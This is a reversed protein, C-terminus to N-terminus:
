IRLFRSDPDLAATVRTAFEGTESAGLLPPGVAGALLMGRSGIGRLAGDLEHLERAHPWAVWAVNAALSYRAQAGADSLAADLALVRHPATAVRVLAADRPAWALEAADHWFSRDQEGDLERPWVGVADAVRATRRDLTEPAGGLRALLRGRSDFDLADLAVPGRALTSVIALAEGIGPLEFLLTRTARPRPFVKFSLEVMVGLRGISGVMLKPLDFGAANKVVKGGGAILRGTGDILRVGLIFDRLGGHRYANAGSAGAAVVGALTAGADAFPPDFPLYQGHEALTDAIEAVPTGARATFTLEAPDYEVIGRLAGLELMVVDEAPARVLAPKTGAGVPLVRPGERVAEQLAQTSDIALVSM